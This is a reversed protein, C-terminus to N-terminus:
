QEPWATIRRVFMQERTVKPQGAWSGGMALNFIIYMPRTYDPPTVVSKTLKRDIYFSITDKRWLVGYTHWGRQCAVRTPYSMGGKRYTGSHLSQYVKGDGVAELVDIEGHYPWMTAAEAPLLWLAPWAGKTCVPVNADFEFYGRLQAFSFRTSAYGSRWAGDAGKFATIALYHPLRRFAGETALTANGFMTTSGAKEITRWRHLPWTKADRDPGADWTVFNESFTAAHKPVITMPVSAAVAQAALLAIM